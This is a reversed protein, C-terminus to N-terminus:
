VRSSLSGTRSKLSGVHTSAITSGALGKGYRSERTLRRTDEMISDDDEGGVLKSPGDRKSNQQDRKSDPEGPTLVVTSDWSGRRGKDGRIFTRMGTM